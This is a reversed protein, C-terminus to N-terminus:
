ISCRLFRKSEYFCVVKCAKSIEIVHAKDSTSQNALKRLHTFKIPKSFLRSLVLLAPAAVLRKMHILWIEVVRTNFCVFNYM